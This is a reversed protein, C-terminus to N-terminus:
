FLQQVAVGTRPRMFLPYTKSKFSDDDKQIVFWAVLGDSIQKRLDEEAASVVIEVLWQDVNGSVSGTLVAHLVSLGSSVVSSM